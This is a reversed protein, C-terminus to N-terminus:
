QWHDTAFRCYIDIYKSAVVNWTFNEELRRRAAEGLERSFDPNDVLKELAETTAIPSRPEVLLASDGVVEECGTNKTTIIALGAAMAELLVMPFNESESPFVFISSTEYLDKLERSTNPLWGWFKIKKSQGDVMQKLTQLYPGDGVINIDHALELGELAKLFYQIGKREFMRSVILIRKQKNKIPQFRDIDIGNPIVSIKDGSYHKNVLSKLAESLCVLQDADNVIKKWLPSLIKHEIRFRDPNYGPVDSGHATIIYPLKTIKKLLYSVLGDPFIFHTHNIDYHKSKILRLVMPIASLAYSVMEPTSCISESTRLCPVRYINTGNIMEHRPLGRFGMTVIDIEHGLRAIEKTLGYVVRAGGGGLPPFEYSLMLVKM